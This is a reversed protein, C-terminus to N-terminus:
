ASRDTGSITSGAGAQHSAKRGGLFRRWGELASIEAFIEVAERSHTREVKMVGIVLKRKAQLAEASVRPLSSPDPTPLSYLMSEDEDGAVDFEPEPEPAPAAAATVDPPAVTAGAAELESKRNRLEIAEPDEIVVREFSPPADDDFHAQLTPNNNAYVSQEAKV